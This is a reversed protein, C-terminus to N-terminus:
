NDLQTRKFFRTMSTWPKHIKTRQYPIMADIDDSYIWTEETLVTINQFIFNSHSTYM